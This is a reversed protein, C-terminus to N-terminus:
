QTLLFANTSFMIVVEGDSLASGTADPNDGQQKRRPTNM